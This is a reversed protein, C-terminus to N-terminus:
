RGKEAKVIQALGLLKSSIQLQEHAAADVNIEFRVHGRDLKLNIAGGESAFGETEGIILMGSPKLKPCLSRFHRLEQSSVFLMQCRNAHDADAVLQYALPRGGVSKAHIVQEVADGVPGHGLVCVTIPATARAFAEPPWEVFKAFNYVFAAKLQYEDVEQARGSMVLLSGLLICGIGPSKM